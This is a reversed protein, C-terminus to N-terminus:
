KTYRWKYGGATKTIGKLQHYIAFRSVGAFLSADVVTQFQKVFSGNMDYACIPTSKAVAINRKREESMIYKERKLGTKGNSIHKRTLHNCQNEKFTCWRLNVVRNDTRDTNIHDVCPKNLPNPLFADAVLRHLLHNKEKSNKTLCVQMYREGMSAKILRGKYVRDTKRYPRIRDKSKINGYNSIQYYSEYGVVDKWIEHQAEM